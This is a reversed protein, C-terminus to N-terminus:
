ANCLLDLLLVHNVIIKKLRTYQRKSTAIHKTLVSWLVTCTPWYVLNKKYFIPCYFISSVTVTRIMSMCIMFIFSRILPQLIQALM